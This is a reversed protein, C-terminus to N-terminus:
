ALTTAIQEVTDVLLDVEETLNYAGFSARITGEVKLL